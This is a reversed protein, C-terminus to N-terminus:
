YEPHEYEMVDGSLDAHTSLWLNLTVREGGSVPEVRHVNEQGSSFVVLRGPKPRISMELGEDMFTFNGGQFDKEGDTLYLVASVDYEPM